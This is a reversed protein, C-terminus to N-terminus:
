FLEKGSDADLFFRCERHLRLISAPCKESVPGKLAAQVARAKYKGPVTCIAYETNMLAPVTLTFARRPVKNLLPFCGDRVQQLRCAKDLTVPKVLVPDKFDAVPPDNFAIHGNEGIGCLLIDIPAEALLAAYRRCEEAEDANGRIYHVKKFPVKDFIRERLFNGFSQPADEPLGIYEDMHFATIRTWDITKRSALYKLMENQSPAAGFIIRIEKKRDLCKAIYEQAQRGAAKGMAKRDKHIEVVATMQKIANM